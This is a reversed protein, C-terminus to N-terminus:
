RWSGKADAKLKMKGSALEINDNDVMGGCVKCQQLGKVRIVGRGCYPCAYGFGKYRTELRLLRKPKPMEYGCEEFKKYVRLEKLWEALQRHDEACDKCDLTKAMKECHEIAQDLTLIHPDNHM